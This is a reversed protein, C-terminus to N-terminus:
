LLNNKLVCWAVIQTANKISNYSMITPNAGSRFLNCDLKPLCFIPHTSCNRGIPFIYYTHIHSKNILPGLVLLAEVSVVPLPLWNQQKELKYILHLNTQKVLYPICFVASIISMVMFSIVRFHCFKVETPKETEVPTCFKVGM